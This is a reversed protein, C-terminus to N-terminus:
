VATPNAHHRWYADWQDSRVLAEIALIAEANATEWRMGTRKVRATMTKCSAETPGSGIDWGKQSFEPYKIMSRRESVYHLLGDAAKRKNGRLKGRWCVLLDWTPEFGAHKFSHLIEKAWMNGPESSEGFTARRAQHVNEALHYFDLGLADLPLNQRQVQNRIWPAGDVNGVKEDADRLGILGAARRMLQGAAVANGRTAMVLHRSRLQDYYGVIKMEKYRQDAGPRAPVLPRCKKGSRRRKEKIKKRRAIKEAATVAPIM